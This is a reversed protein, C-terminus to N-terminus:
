ANGGREARAEGAVRDLEFPVLVAEDRPLRGEATLENGRDM